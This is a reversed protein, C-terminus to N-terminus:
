APGTHPPPLRVVAALAPPLGALRPDTGGPAVPAPRPRDEGTVAELEAALADLRTGLRQVESLLREALAAVDTLDVRPAPPPPPPPGPLEASALAARRTAVHQDIQALLERAGPSLQGTM